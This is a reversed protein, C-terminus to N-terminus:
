VKKEKGIARIVCGIGGEEVLKAHMKLLVSCSVVEELGKHVYKLCLDYDAPSLSGVVEPVDSERMAKFVSFVNERSKIQL